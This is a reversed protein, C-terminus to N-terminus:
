DQYKEISWTLNDNGMTDILLPKESKDLLGFENTVWTIYPPLVTIHLWKLNAVLTRGDKLHAKFTTNGGVTLVKSLDVKETINKGEKSVTEMIVDETSDQVTNIFDDIFRLIFPETVSSNGSFTINFTNRDSMSPAMWYNKSKDSYIPTIELSSISSKHTRKDIVYWEFSAGDTFPSQIYFLGALNTTIRLKFKNTSGIDPIRDIVFDPKEVKLTENERTGINYINGDPATVIYSSNDKNNLFDESYKGTPVYSLILSTQLNNDEISDMQSSNWWRMFHLQLTKDVIELSASQNLDPNGQDVNFIYSDMSLPKWIDGNKLHINTGKITVTLNDPVPQHNLSEIYVKIETNKLLDMQTDIVVKSLKDNLKDITTESGKIFSGKYYNRKVYKYGLLVKYGPKRNAIVVEVGKSPDEEIHFKYIGGATISWSTIFQNNSNSEKIEGSPESVVHVPLKNNGDVKYAEIPVTIPNEGDYVKDYEGLKIVYYTINQYKDNSIILTFAENPDGLYFRYTNYVKSVEEVDSPRYVSNINLYREGYYRSKESTGKVYNPDKNPDKGITYVLDGYWPIDKVKRNYNDLLEIKVRLDEDPDLSLTTGSERRVWKSGNLTYVNFHYSTEDYNKSNLLLKSIVNFPLFRDIFNKIFKWIKKMDGLNENITVNFEVIGNFSLIQQEDLNVEGDFTNMDYYPWIIKPPINTRPITGNRFDNLWDPSIQKISVLKLNNVESHYLNFVVQYFKETGRIKYLSVLYKLLDTKQKKDLSLISSQNLDIFPFEGFWYWILNLYYDNANEDVKLLNELTNDVPEKINELFYNGCIELFKELIGKGDNDKYSDAEKYYFPLYNILHKLDMM